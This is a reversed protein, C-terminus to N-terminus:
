EEEGFLERQPSPPIDFGCDDLMCRIAGQFDVFRDTPEAFTDERLGSDQYRETATHIHFDYFTSRELTNTHEHSKGNYRRLRFLQTLGTPRFALIVSFDLPNFQSQRLILRFESLEMGTVDLERESHGRKPRIRIRERYDEPLSKSESILRAIAADNLQIAM